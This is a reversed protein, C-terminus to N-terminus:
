ITYENELAIAVAREMIKSIAFVVVASLLYGVNLFHLELTSLNLTIIGETVFSGLVLLCASWKILTVNQSIFIDEKYINKLFERLCILLGFNVMSKLLYFTSSAFSQKSMDVSFSNEKNGFYIGSHLLSLISDQHFFVLVSYIFSMLMLMGMMVLIITILFVAGKLFSKERDNSKYYKWIIFGFLSLIVVTLSFVILM